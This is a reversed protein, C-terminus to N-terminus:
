SKVSLREDEYIKRTAEYLSSHTGADTWWGDLIQHSLTGRAAYVNNVDTIELEQRQSPRITRIINFVDSDYMYIGTVCYNSTPHEPKEEICAIRGQDFKPVGYRRPDEVEKLLVMAGTQQQEFQKVYPLLSASFLNDGLLVVLKEDPSVFKDALALAQAIGGAQEQIAYTIRGGWEEGGGLYEVYLGASQKGTVILIDKIGSDILKQIAYQIM